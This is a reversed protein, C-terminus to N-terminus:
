PPLGSCAADDARLVTGVSTWTAAHDISRLLEVRIKATAGEYYVCGVALDISGPLVLAGPETLAVCDHTSGGATTINLGVGTSSYTSSGNWGILKQPATWPGQPQPATQLTIAGIAYHLDVNPGVLYRHAFLKWRKAPDPELPDIILSTVESILNGSCVGGACDSSAITMPEPTNLEAVYTWTAGHDPSLAVHTRITEQTPVASYAMAGGPADGPYVISPDFIGMGPTDGTVTVETATAPDITQIAPCFPADVPIDGSDRIADGHSAADPNGGGGGGCSAVFGLFVAFGSRMPRVVALRPGALERWAM